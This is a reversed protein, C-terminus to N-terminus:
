YPLPVITSTQIQASQADRSTLLCAAPAQTALRTFRRVSSPGAVVEGIAGGPCSIFQAHTGLAYQLGTYTDVPVPDAATPDVVTITTSTRSTSAFAGDADQIQNLETTGASRFELYQDLQVQVAAPDNSSFHMAGASNSLFNDQDIAMPYSGVYVRTPVIFNSAFTVPTSGASSTFTFNSLVAMVTAPQSSNNLYPSGSVTGAYVGFRFIQGATVSLNLVQTPATADGRITTYTTVGYDAYISAYNNGAPSIADTSETITFSLTGDTPFEIQTYFYSASSGSVASVTITSSTYTYATNGVDYIHVWNSPDMDGVFGTSGM